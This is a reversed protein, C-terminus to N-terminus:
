EYDITELIERWHATAKDERDVVRQIINLDIHKDLAGCILEHAM